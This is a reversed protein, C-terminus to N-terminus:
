CLRVRFVWRRRGPTAVLSAKLTGPEALIAPRSGEMPSIEQSTARSMGSSSTKKKKQLATQISATDSPLNALQHFISRKRIIAYVLNCNGSLCFPTLRNPFRTLLRFTALEIVNHGQDLCKM